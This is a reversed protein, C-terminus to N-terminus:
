FRIFHKFKILNECAKSLYRIKQNHDRSYFLNCKKKLHCLFQYISWKQCMDFTVCNKTVKCGPGLIIYILISVRTCKFSQHQQM